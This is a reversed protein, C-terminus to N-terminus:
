STLHEFTVFNNSKADPIQMHIELHFKQKYSIIKHLGNGLWNPTVM